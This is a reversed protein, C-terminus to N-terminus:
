QDRVRLLALIGLPAFRPQRLKRDQLGTGHTVYQHRRSRVLAPPWHKTIFVTRRKTLTSAYCLRTSVNWCDDPADTWPRRSEAGGLEEFEPLDLDASHLVSSDGGDYHVGHDGDLFDQEPSRMFHSSDPLTPYDNLPSLPLFITTSPMQLPDYSDDGERRESEVDLAGNDDNRSDNNQTISGDGGGDGGNNSELDGEKEQRLKELTKRNKSGPPKGIRRAVSYHCPHSSDACRKCPLGGGPCKVKSANCQDCAAKHKTPKSAERNASTTSAHM